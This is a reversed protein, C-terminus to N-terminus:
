FNWESMTMVRRIQRWKKQKMTTLARNIKKRARSFKENRNELRYIGDHGLVVISCISLEEIWFGIGCMRPLYRASRPVGKWITKNKTRAGLFCLKLSICFIKFFQEACSKVFMEESLCRCPDVRGSIVIHLPLISCFSAAELLFNREIPKAPTSVKRLLLLTFLELLETMFINEERYKGGNPKEEKTNSLTRFCRLCENNKWVFPLRKLCELYRWVKSCEVRLVNRLKRAGCELANVLQLTWFHVRSIQPTAAWNLIGWNLAM